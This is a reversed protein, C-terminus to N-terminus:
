DIVGFSLNATLEPDFWGLGFVSYGFQPNIPRRLCLTSGTFPTGVSWYGDDHPGDALGENVFSVAGSYWEVRFSYARVQVEGANCYQDSLYYSLGFWQREQNAAWIQYSAVNPVLAYPDGFILLQNFSSSVAVAAFPSAYQENVISCMMWTVIAQHVAHSTARTSDPVIDVQPLGKPRGQTSGTINQATASQDGTSFLGWRNYWVRWETEALTEAPKQETWVAVAAILLPALPDLIVNMTGTDVKPAAKPLHTGTDPDIASLPWPGYWTPNGLPYGYMYRIIGWTWGGNPLVETYNFVLVFVGNNAVALDPQIEDLVTTTGVRVITGPGQSSWDIGTDDVMFYKQYYYVDWQSDEDTWYTLQAWVVHVYLKGNEEDARSYTVVVSPTTCRIVDVGTLDPPACFREQFLWAGTVDAVKVWIYSPDQNSEHRVFATALPSIVQGGITDTVAIDGPNFGPPVPSVWM